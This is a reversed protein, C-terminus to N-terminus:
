ALGKLSINRSYVATVVTGALFVGGGTIAYFLYHTPYGFYPGIAAILVICGGMALAPIAHWIAGALIYMIGVFILSVAPYYINSLEEPMGNYSLAKGLVFLSVFGVSWTIGYVTGTFTAAKSTRIGRASRAGLVGSVVGAIVMLVAFVPAAVELPFALHPRAGDILWLMGFGTGWAVAWSLLIWPVFRAMRRQVDEQQVQLLTLMSAPDLPADDDPREPHQQDTM